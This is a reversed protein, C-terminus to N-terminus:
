GGEDAPLQLQEFVDVFEDADGSDDSDKRSSPQIVASSVEASSPPFPSTVGGANINHVNNNCSVVANPIDSNIVSSNL